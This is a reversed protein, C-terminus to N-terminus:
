FPNEEDFFTYELSFATSLYEGLACIGARESAHHGCSIYVADNECAEHYTREAYEGSIFVQAGENIAQQFFDQAAGTCWAIRTISDVNYGVSLPTRRMANEIQTLLETKSTEVIQAHWILPESPSQWVSETIFHKAFLVNNGIAPHQDLPLHYAFLNINHELLSAIRKKKLGCIVLTEGKWFYGHHVLLADANWAIAADIAAQSATVATMIRQIDTKGEVQLGNPAYDQYRKCQLFDHLYQQLESRTVM